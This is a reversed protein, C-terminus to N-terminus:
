KFALIVVREYFSCSFLDKQLHNEFPVIKLCQKTKLPRYKRELHRFNSTSKWMPIPSISQLTMNLQCGALWQHAFCPDAVFVTSIHRVRQLFLPRKPPKSTLGILQLNLDSKHSIQCALITSYYYYMSCKSKFFTFSIPQFIHFTKRIPAFLISADVYM